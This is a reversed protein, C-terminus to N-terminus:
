LLTQRFDSNHLFDGGFLNLSGDESWAYNTATYLEAIVEPALNALQFGFGLTVLEPCGDRVSRALMKACSVDLTKLSPFDVHCLDVGGGSRLFIMLVPASIEELDDFSLLGHNRAEKSTYKLLARLTKEDDAIHTFSMLNSNIDGSDESLMWTELTNSDLLKMAPGNPITFLEAATLDSDDM